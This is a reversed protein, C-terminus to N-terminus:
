WQESKEMERWDVRGINRGLHIDAWEGSTSLAEERDLRHSRESGWRNNIIGLENQIKRKSGESM